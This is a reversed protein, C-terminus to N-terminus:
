IVLHYTRRPECHGMAAPFMQSNSPIEHQVSIKAGMGGFDVKLTEPTPHNALVFHCYYSYTTIGKPFGNDILSLSLSLSDFSKYVIYYIYM